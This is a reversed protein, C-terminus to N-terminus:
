DMDDLDSEKLEYCDIDKIADCLYIHIFPMNIRPSLGRVITNGNKDLYKWVPINLNNYGWSHDIDKFIQVRIDECPGLRNFGKPMGLFILGVGSMIRTGPCHEGCELYRGKKFCSVDSGTVCGPCQYEEIAKKQYDEMDGGFNFQNEVFIGYEFIIDLYFIFYNISSLLDM